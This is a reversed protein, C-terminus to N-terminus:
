AGTPGDNDGLDLNPQPSQREDGVESPCIMSLRSTPPVSQAGAAGATVTAGVAGVGKLFATSFARNSTDTGSRSGTRTIIDSSAWHYSSIHAPSFVWSNRRRNRVPAGTSHNTYKVAGVEFNIATISRSGAISSVGSAIAAM